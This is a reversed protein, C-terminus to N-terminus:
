AVRLWSHVVRTRKERFNQFGKRKRSAQELRNKNLASLFRCINVTNTHNCTSLTADATTSFTLAFVLIMAVCTILLIAGEKGRLCNAFFICFRYTFYLRLGGVLPSNQCFPHQIVNWIAVPLKPMCFQLKSHIKTSATLDRLPSSSGLTGM